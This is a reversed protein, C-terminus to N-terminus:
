ILILSLQRQGYFFQKEKLIQPVLKILEEIINQQAQDDYFRDLNINSGIIRISHPLQNLDKKLFTQNKHSGFILFFIPLILFSICIAIEKKSKRLVYLAPVTFFSFAILNLTYTGILSLVSLFNINESFSYVILNWPFGTFINGRIFEM